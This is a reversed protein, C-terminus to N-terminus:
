PAYAYLRSDGAVFIRGHVVIPSTFHHVNAFPDSGALVAQGTAIDFAHLQSDGGTGDNTVAAGATWVLADNTGDSSTVIPSSGGGPNGCWASAIPKATNTPDLTTVVLSGSGKGCGTGNSGNGIMVIYQTGGVSASAPGCTIDSQMVQLTGISPSVAGGLAKTADLAWEDGDKGLQVIATGGSPPNVILPASGGLDEDSTDFNCQMGGDVNPPTGTPGVMCGSKVGLWYDSTTTSFTAGAGTFTPGAQFRILSFSYVGFNESNSASRQLPPNGTAAYINTGDSSLGGVAWIGTDVSPSAWVKAPRASTPGTVPVGVVWGHYTGCDGIFGGYPVYATDGVILVAGRQNENGPVFAGVVPDTLTSVDLSWAGTTKSLTSTPVGWITHKSITGGSGTVADLVMMGSATDIAPTGRIGVLHSFGCPERTVGTGLNVSGQLKGTTGDFAYVNDSEDAVYFSPNGGYGKEAYLPSARVETNTALGTGDFSSDLHLMAGSLKAKTLATDVFFGDRNVHKHFQLVSDDGSTSSGGASTTSGNSTSGGHTLSGTGSSVSGDDHVPTSSTSAAGGDGPEDSGSKGCAACAVTVFAGVAIRGLSLRHRM